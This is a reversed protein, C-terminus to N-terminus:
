QRQSRSGRTPRRLVAYMSDSLPMRDRWGMREIELGAAKAMTRLTDPTFYNVHDPWRFGCWRPGRLVRNWSAYNPVKIVVFGGDRLRTACERLLPLPEIEHELFSSMVVIDLWGPEFRTLGELANAHVCSGGYPELAAQSLRALETSIEIGHPICRQRLDRPLRDMVVGLLQGWGCGLDLLRVEPATIRPILHLTLDAVKNRKLVRHRFRKLATSVAYRAPEAKARAQAERQLTVQWALEDHLSDYGPPNELFVLGTENCQRVVWPPPALHLVTTNTERELLPCVRQM